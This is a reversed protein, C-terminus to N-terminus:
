GSELGAAQSLEVRVKVGSGVIDAVHGCGTAGDRTDRQRCHGCGTHVTAKQWRASSLARRSACGEATALAAKRHRCSCRM